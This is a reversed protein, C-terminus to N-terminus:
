AQQPFFPRHQIGSMVSSLCIMTQYGFHYSLFEQKLGNLLSSVIYVLNFDVAVYLCSNLTFSKDGLFLILGKGWEPIWPKAVLKCATKNVICKNLSLMLEFVKMCGNTLKGYVGKHLTKSAKSCSYNERWFTSNRIFNPITYYLSPCHQMLIWISSNIWIVWKVALHSLSLLLCVAMRTKYVLGM